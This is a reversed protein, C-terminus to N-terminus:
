KLSVSVCQGLEGLGVGSHHGHVAVHLVGGKGLGHELHVGGPEDLAEDALLVQDAGGHPGGAPVPGDGEDGGEGAEQGPGKVVEPHADDGLGVDVHDPGM